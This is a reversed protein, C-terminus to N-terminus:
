VGASQAFLAHCIASTAAQPRPPSPLTQNSVTVASLSQPHRNRFLPKPPIYFFRAPLQRQSLIRDA